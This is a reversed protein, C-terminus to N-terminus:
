GWERCAQQHQLVQTDLHVAVDGRLHTLVGDSDAHHPVLALDHVDPVDSIDGLFM